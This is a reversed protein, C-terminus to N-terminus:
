TSTDEAITSLILRKIGRRLLGGAAPQSIDLEDAVARLDADRPEEFYGADLAILLADRQSDTLGDDSNEISAHENVRRLEFSIDNRKAHEWLWSLQQRSPTWVTITWGTGDNEMDLAVGNAMSIMPSFLKTQDSYEVSYIAEADNRAQHVREFDTITHDNELGEEFRDFDTSSVRYLYRRSESEAGSESVPKVSASEDYALTEM